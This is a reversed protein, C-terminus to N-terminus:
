RILRDLIFPEHPKPAAGAPKGQGSESSATPTVKEEPPRELGGKVGCGALLGAVAVIAALRIAGRKAQTVAESVRLEKEAVRRPPGAV